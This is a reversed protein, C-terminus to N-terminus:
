RGVYLALTLSFTSSYRQEGEQGEHGTGSGVKGNGTNSETDCSKNDESFNERIKEM